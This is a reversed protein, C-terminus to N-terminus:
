WSLGHMLVRKVNDPFSCPEGAYVSSAEGELSTDCQGSDLLVRVSEARNLVVTNM